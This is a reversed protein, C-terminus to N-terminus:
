YVKFMCCYIKYRGKIYQSVLKLKEVSDKGATAIEACIDLDTLFNDLHLFKEKLEDRNVIKIDGALVFPMNRIEKIKAAIPPQAEFSVAGIAANGEIYEYEETTRTKFLSDLFGEKKPVVQIKGKNLFAFGGSVNGRFARLFRIEQELDEWCDKNLSVGFLGAM